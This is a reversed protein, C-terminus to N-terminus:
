LWFAGASLPKTLSSHSSITSEERYHELVTLLSTPAWASMERQVVHKEVFSTTMKTKISKIGQYLFLDM